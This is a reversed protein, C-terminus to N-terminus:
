IHKLLERIVLKMKIVPNAYEDIAVDVYNSTTKAINYHVAYAYNMTFWWCDKNYERGLAKLRNCVDFQKAVSETEDCTWKMGITGDKRRMNRIAHEMKEYTIEDLFDELDDYFDNRMDEPAKSILSHMFDVFRGIKHEDGSHTLLYEKLHDFPM